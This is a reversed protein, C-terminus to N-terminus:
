EDETKFSLKALCLIRPNFNNEKLASCVESWIRKAKLTETSFNAIIKISKGKFTIKNKERVAKL